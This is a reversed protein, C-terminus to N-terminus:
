KLVSYRKQYLKTDKKKKKKLQTTVNMNHTTSQGKIAENMEWKDARQM